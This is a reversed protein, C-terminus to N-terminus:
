HSKIYSKYLSICNLGIIGADSNAAVVLGTHLGALYSAPKEVGFIKEKDLTLCLWIPYIYIVIYYYSRLDSDIKIIEVPM